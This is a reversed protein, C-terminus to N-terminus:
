GGGGGGSRMGAWAQNIAQSLQHVRQAVRERDGERVARGWRAAFKDPHWRLCAQRYARRLARHGGGGGGGAAMEVLYDDLAEFPPWPVDDFALLIIESSESSAAAQAEVEAWRAEHSALAAAHDHAAGAATSPHRAAGVAGARLEGTWAAHSNARWAAEEVQRAAAHRARYQRLVEAAAAAASHVQRQRQAGHVRAQM